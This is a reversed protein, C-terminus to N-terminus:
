LDVPSEPNVSVPTVLFDVQGPHISPVNELAPKFIAGCDM